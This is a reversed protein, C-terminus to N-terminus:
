RNETKVQNEAVLYINAKNRNKRPIFGVEKIKFGASKVIKALEGKGFCHFYCKEIGAFPIMIDRIDFKSLGFIQLANNKFIRPWFKPQGLLNWVTLILAGNPKLVRSIEQLVQQRFAKSPIHHLFAVAYVRDFYNDDFPMELANGVRWNAQPYKKKAIVVLEESSDLGIYHAGRDKLLEFLRGNGCGLDLVWDKAKLNSFLFEMEPWVNKRRKSFELAAQNYDQKTKNLLYQAFDKKM